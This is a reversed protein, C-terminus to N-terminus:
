ILFYQQFITNQKKLYWGLTQSAGQINWCLMQVVETDQRLCILGFFRCFNLLLCKGTALPKPQKLLRQESVATNCTQKGRGRYLSEGGTIVSNEVILIVM